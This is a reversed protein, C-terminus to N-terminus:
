LSTAKEKEELKIFIPCTNNNEISFIMFNKDGMIISHCRKLTDNFVLTNRQSLAYTHVKITM